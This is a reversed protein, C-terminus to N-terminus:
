EFAFWVFNSIVVVVFSLHWLCVCVCLWVCLCVCLSDCCSKSMLLLAFSDCQTNPGVSSGFCECYAANVSSFLYYFLFKHYLEVQSIKKKTDILKKIRETQQKWYKCFSCYLFFILLRGALCYAFFRFQPRVSSYFLWLSLHSLTLLSRFYTSENCLDFHHILSHTQKTEPFYFLIEM